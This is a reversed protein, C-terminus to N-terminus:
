PNKNFISNIFENAKEQLVTKELDMPEWSNGDYIEIQFNSNIRSDGAEPPLDLDLLTLPVRSKDIRAINIQNLIDRIDKRNKYSGIFVGHPDSIGKLADVSSVYVYFAESGENLKKHVYNKYESHTGAIVFLKSTQSQVM